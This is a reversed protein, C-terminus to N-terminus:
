WRGRNSDGDLSVCRHGRIRQACQDSRAFRERELELAILARRQVITIEDLRDHTERVANPPLHRMEDNTHFVVTAHNACAHTVSGRGINVLDRRHDARSRARRNGCANLEHVDLLLGNEDDLDRHLPLRYGCAISNEEAPRQAAIAARGAHWHVHERQLGQL